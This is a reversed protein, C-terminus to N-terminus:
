HRVTEGRFKAIFYLALQCFIVSRCLLFKGASLVEPIVIENNIKYYKGM